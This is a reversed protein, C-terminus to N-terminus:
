KKEAGRRGGEEGEIKALAERLFSAFRQRGVYAGVRLAIEIAEKRGTPDKIVAALNPAISRIRRFDRVVEALNRWFDEGSSM